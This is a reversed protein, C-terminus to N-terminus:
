YPQKQSNRGTEKTARLFDDWTSLSKVNFAPYRQFSERGAQDESKRLYWLNAERECDVKWCWCCLIFAEWPQSNRPAMEIDWLVTNKPM